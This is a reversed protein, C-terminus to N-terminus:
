FASVTQTPLARASRGISRTSSITMCAVAGNMIPRRSLAKGFGTSGRYNVSLVVYGRNALWQHDPNFGWYDRWYPGGHIVLVLPPKGADALDSPQTLYGNLELGDRARIVVPEMPRLPVGALSKRQVYLPRVVSDDRDLLVYEGSTKDREFYASAKKDGLPVSPFALDGPAYTTLLPLIKAADPDILHWRSRDKVARAMLPRRDASFVVDDIDAAPDDALIRRAQTKMDIAVLAAKDRQRTDLLHLTQGDDSFDLLRTGDLDSIPVTMFPVWDGDETRELVELDGSPTYRGGLRLRFHSDTILWVYEHNEFILESDGSILNIRFLDFYRKDRQNHRLLAQEPFRPDIEQLFSKVGREPTLLVSKGDKLSVSSARWNEDGEHDQFYILHQNTHAWRYYPGIDRDTARTIPEGAQPDAIAAVWLNRVGHLPMLYSIHEGNPSVQVNQYDPDDFFV